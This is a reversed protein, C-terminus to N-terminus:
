AEEDQAPRASGSLSDLLTIGFVATILELIDALLSKLHISSMVESKVESQPADDQPLFQKFPNSM